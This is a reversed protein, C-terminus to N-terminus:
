QSLKLFRNSKLLLQLMWLVSSATGEPFKAQKWYHNYM